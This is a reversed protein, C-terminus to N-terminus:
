RVPFHSARAKSTRATNGSAASSRRAQALKPM